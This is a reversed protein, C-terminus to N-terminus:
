VEEWIWMSNGLPYLKAGGVIVAEYDETEEPFDFTFKSSAEDYHTKINLMKERADAIKRSEEL